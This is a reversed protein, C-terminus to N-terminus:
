GALRGQDRRGAESRGPGAGAILVQDASAVKKHIRRLDDLADGISDANPKAPYAYSTGSAPVLDDAEIRRGSALAVGGPDVSIARDRIVVGRTLLTDYPFFMNEAWDSRTLARLAAATNVFADRPDILIVDAEADLAMAVASGGYGGGIVAVTRAMADCETSPSAWKVRNRLSCRCRTTWSSAALCTGNPPASGMALEAIRRYTEAYFEDALGSGKATLAVRVARADQPDAERRVLGNRKTRDVLSTLSLKALDLM